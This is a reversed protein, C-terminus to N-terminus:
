ASPQPHSRIAASAYLLPEYGARRFTPPIDGRESDSDADTYVTEGECEDIDRCLQEQADLRTGPPCVCSFSGPTNRCQGGTCYQLVLM